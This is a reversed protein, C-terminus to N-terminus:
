SGLLAQVAEVDEDRLTGERVWAITGDPAVLYFTPFGHVGYSDVLARTPWELIPYEIKFAEKFAKSTSPNQLKDGANIALIQLADGPHQHLLKLNAVSHQCHPCTSAFFELLVYQRGKFQELTYFTGDEATLALDPAPTGPQLLDLNVPAEEDGPMEALAEPPASFDRNATDYYSYGLLIMLAIGTVMMLGKKLLRRNM